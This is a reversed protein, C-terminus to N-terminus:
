EIRIGSSRNVSSCIIAIIRPASRPGTNATALRPAVAGAPAPLTWLKECMQNPSLPTRRETTKIRWPPSPAAGEFAPGGDKVNPRSPPQMRRHIDGIVEICCLVDFPPKERDIRVRECCYIHHLFPHVDAAIEELDANMM